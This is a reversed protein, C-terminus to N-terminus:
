YYLHFDHEDLDGVFHSTRGIQFIGQLGQSLIPIMNLQLIKDDVLDLWIM